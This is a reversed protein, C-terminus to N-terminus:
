VRAPQSMTARPMSLRVETGEDPVSRVEATGGRRVMRAHVSESLGRRDAPVAAPDFGRGRDRVFLSVQTPEVEAYLSISQVGSWKAANLTAERAAALLAQLDEDVPCDGVTVVEVTLGHQAEIESQILRVGAAFTTDAALSGPARGDFLWSRLEREQARALQIVQQPETARRQILALTQLVSDHVRSAMDAREEARVRAQREDVLERGVRLWWPGLVVVIAAIVLSVGALPRLLATSTHGILLTTVGGVLLVGAILARLAIRSRRTDGAFGILPEALHRLTAQEGAPANRSVLVIGIVSIVFAWALSGIWYAGVLSMLVFVAISLSALGAALTVGTRDSLAKSGISSSEGAAPVLLWAVLYAAVGFGGALAAVVFVTRVIAVDFGTKASVGAAVGGLRRQEPIRRLSGRQRWSRWRRKTRTQEAMCGM